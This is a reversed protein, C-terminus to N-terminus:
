IYYTRNKIIRIGSTYSMSKGTKKKGPPCTWGLFSSKSDSLNGLPWLPCVTFRNAIGESTRIRGEGGAENNSYRFPTSSSFREGVLPPSNPEAVPPLRLSRLSRTRGGREVIKKSRSLPHSDNGSILLPLLNPKGAPSRQAMWGSILRLDFWPFATVPIWPRGEDSM